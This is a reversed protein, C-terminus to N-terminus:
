RDGRPGIAEPHRVVQNPEAQVPAPHAPVCDTWAIETVVVCRSHHERRGVEFTEPRDDWVEGQEADYAIIFRDPPVPRHGQYPVSHLAALAPAPSVGILVPMAPPCCRRGLFLPRAPRGAAAASREIVDDPGTLAVTFVADALYGKRRTKYTDTHLKGDASRWGDRGATQFDSLPRGAEDARVATALSALDDIPDARGRGYANALLGVIGSKTPFPMTPRDSFEAISWSQMPGDLRLLLTSTM